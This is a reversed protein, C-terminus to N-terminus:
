VTHADVAAPACECPWRRGCSASTQWSPCTLRSARWHAACGCLLVCVCMICTLCLAHWWARVRACVWRRLEDAEENYVTVCVFLKIYREQRVVRLEDVLEAPASGCM